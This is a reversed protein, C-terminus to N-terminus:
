PFVECRAESENLRIKREIAGSVKENASAILSSPVIESLPGRPDPLKTDVAPHFYHYLAM